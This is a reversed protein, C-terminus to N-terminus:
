REHDGFAMTPEKAAIILPPSHLEKREDIRQWAQCDPAEINGLKGFRATDYPFEGVLFECQRISM